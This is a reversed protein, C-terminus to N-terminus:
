IHQRHRQVQHQRHYLGDIESNTTWNGLTEPKNNPTSGSFFDLSDSAVGNYSPEEASLNSDITQRYVLANNHSWGDAGFQARDYLVNGLGEDADYM